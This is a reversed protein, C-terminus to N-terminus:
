VHLFNFTHHAIDKFFNFQLLQHQFNTSFQLGEYESNEIFLMLLFGFQSKALNIGLENDM